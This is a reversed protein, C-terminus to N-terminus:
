PRRLRRWAALGLLAAGILTLMVGITTLVISDSGFGRTAGAADLVAAGVVGAGGTGVAIGGIGIPQRTVNDARPADPTASIGLADHAVGEASEHIEPLELLGAGWLAAERGRRKVLGPAIRGGSYVWRQIQRPVSGLDTTIATYFDTRKGTRPNSFAQAGVNFIFSVLADFCKQPLSEILEGSLNRYITRLAEAIDADLRDIAQAETIVMGEKVGTTSGWGITWVGKFDRYAALRLAEEGKLTQKAAHSPSRMM